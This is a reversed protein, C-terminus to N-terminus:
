SVRRKSEWGYKQAHYFLTGIGIKSPTKLLSDFKRDIARPSDSYSPNESLARFIDRAGEGLSALAMGCRVWEDYGTVYDRLFIAADKALDLDRDADYDSPQNERSEFYSKYQEYYMGVLDDERPLWLPKPQQNVFIDPDHPMLCGRCCDCTSPDPSAEVIEGINKAYRKYVFTYIDPDTISRSLLFVAKLGDGSPSRFSFVLSKIKNIRSKIVEVDVHDFDLILLQSSILGARNKEVLSSPTFFPLEKKIRNKETEDGSLLCTRLAETKKKLVPDGSIENIIELLTKNDLEQPNFLSEGCSVTMEFINM